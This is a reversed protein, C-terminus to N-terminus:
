EDWKLEQIDGNVFADLEEKTVKVVMGPKYEGADALKKILSMAAPNDQNALFIKKM